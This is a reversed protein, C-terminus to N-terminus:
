ARQVAQMPTPCPMATTSSFTYGRRIETSRDARKDQRVLPEEIIQGYFLFSNRLVSNQLYSSGLSPAHDHAPVAPDEGTVGHYQFRKRCRRATKGQHLDHLRGVQRATGHVPKKAGCESGLSVNALNSLVENMNMNSSTGSGTQFVDVPFEEDHKGELVGDAAQTIAQTLEKDLLGLEYNAKAAAWKVSALARIFPRRMGRGSVRFNDVARQTQAGWMRGAPVKVEGMSDMETRFEDAMAVEPGPM